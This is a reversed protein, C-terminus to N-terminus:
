LHCRSAPALRPWSAQLTPSSTGNRQMNFSESRLHFFDITMLVEVLVDDDIANKLSVTYDKFSAIRQPRAKSQQQQEQEQEQAQEDPAVNDIEAHKEADGSVAGSSQELEAKEM